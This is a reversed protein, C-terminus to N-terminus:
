SRLIKKRLHTFFWTWGHPRTAPTGPSEITIRDARDGIRVIWRRVRGTRADHWQLSGLMDGQNRPLNEAEALGMQYIRQPAEAIRRARDAAWRAHAMRRGRASQAKAIHRKYPNHM